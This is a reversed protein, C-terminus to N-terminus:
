ARGYAEAIAMELAADAKEGGWAVLQFAPYFRECAGVAARLMADVQGATAHAGGALSLAYRYVMVEDKPWIAFGGTWIKENAAMITRSLEGLREAPPSMEFSCLLRLTEDRSSWALSVAYTRWQGEVAMAIQDDGVRDFDWERFEALSEVLDIPHLEESHFSHEVAAM